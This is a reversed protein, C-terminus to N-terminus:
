AGLKNKIKGAETQMLSVLGAAKAVAAILATTNDRTTLLSQHADPSDGPGKYAWVAQVDAASLSGGGSPPLIPPGGVFWQGFDATVSENHDYTNNFPPYIQMVNFDSPVGAGGNWGTSMTRWTWQVLGAAKLAKCVGTSAYVGTRGAGLVSNIGQFYGSNVVATPDADMDVSFYIPRGAPMGCATAVRLGTNANTVGQAHGGQWDTTYHEYNAVIAIGADSLAKAESPTLAWSQESTYRSIFTCGLAKLASVSSTTSDAGTAM